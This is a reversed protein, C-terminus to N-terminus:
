KTGGTLQNLLAQGRPDAIPYCEYGPDNEDATNAHDACLPYPQGFTTPGIAIFVAEAPPVQTRAKKYDDECITCLM